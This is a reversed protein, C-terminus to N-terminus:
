IAIKEEAVKKRHFYFFTFITQESFILITNITLFIEGTYNGFFLESISMGNAKLLYLKNFLAYIIDFNLM